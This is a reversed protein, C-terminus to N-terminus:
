VQLKGNACRTNMAKAKYVRLLQRKRWNTGQPAGNSADSYKWLSGSSFSVSGTLRLQQKHPEQSLVTIRQPPIGTLSMM